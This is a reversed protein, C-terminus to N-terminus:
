ATRDRTLLTLLHRGDPTPHLEVRRRDGDRRQERRVLGHRAAMGIARSTQMDTAGLLARVDSQGIPRGTRNVEIAAALARVTISGARSRAALRLTAALLDASM